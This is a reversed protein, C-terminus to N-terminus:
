TRSPGTSIRRGEHRLSNFGYGWRGHRSKVAELEIMKIPRRVCFGCGILETLPSHDYLVM